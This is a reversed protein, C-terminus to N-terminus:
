FIIGKKIVILIIAKVIIVSSADKIKKGCDLRVENADNKIKRKPTLTIAINKYGNDIIITTFKIELKLELFENALYKILNSIRKDPM